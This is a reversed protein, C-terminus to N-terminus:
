DELRTLLLRALERVAPFPSFAVLRELRLRETGPSGAVWAEWADIREPTV